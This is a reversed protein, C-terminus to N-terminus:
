LCRRARHRVVVEHPLHRRSDQRNRPLGQIVIRSSKEDALDEFLGTLIDDVASAQDPTLAKFPSLKFLDSNRIESEAQTFLGLARLEEFIETFTQQYQARRYYDADIIGENRNLVEYRGDGALHRILYSELDLCVSKNFTEDVIVRASVLDSKSDSDLHQRLRTAGNISEGVYIKGTDDLAYVVPWNSHRSDIEAWTAVAEATFSLRDIRFSTM